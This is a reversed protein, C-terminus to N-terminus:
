RQRPARDDQAFALAGQETKKAHNPGRVQWLRHACPRPLFRREDDARAGARHMRFVCRYFQGEAKRRLLAVSADLVFTM